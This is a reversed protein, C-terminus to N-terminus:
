NLSPVTFLVVAVVTTCVELVPVTGVNLEATENILLISSSPFTPDIKYGAGDEDKYYIYIITSKLLFIILESL